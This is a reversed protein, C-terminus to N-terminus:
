ADRERTGVVLTRGRTVLYPCAALCMRCGICKDQDVVTVGDEVRYTATVPCVKTCPPDECMMCPRPLFYEQGGSSKMKFVPIWPQDDHLYHMKNCAETCKGCGDCRRLDFVMVWQHKGIDGAAPEGKRWGAAAHALAQATTPPAVAAHGAAHTRPQTSVLELPYIHDDKARLNAAIVPLGLSAAGAAFAVAGIGALLRRRSVPTASAAASVGLTTDGQESQDHM